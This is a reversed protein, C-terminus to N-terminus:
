PVEKKALQYKSLFRILIIVGFILIMGGFPIFVIVNNLPAEFYPSLLESFFLGFGGLLAYLFVRKLQIFYAILSFPTTIFLLGIILMVLFGPLSVQFIGMLTFIFMTVTLGVNIGLFVALLKNRKKRIQGFKVFGIRPRSIYIKGLIFILGAGIDWSFVLILVGMTEPLGFFRGLPALGMGMIILGFYIDWFGDQFTSIWIKKELEKLNVGKTM